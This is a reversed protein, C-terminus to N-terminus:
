RLIQRKYVDQMNKHATGYRGSYSYIKKRRRRGGRLKFYAIFLIIIVTAAVAVIGVIKLVKLAFAKLNEMREQHELDSEPVADIGTAAVIKTTGILYDGYYVDQRKYVDLHTYSVSKHNNNLINGIGATERTWTEGSSSSTYSVPAHGEYGPIEVTNKNEETVYVIIANDKPTGDNNYAGVGEDYNFHAYGSRDYEYVQIGNRTHVQRKYM